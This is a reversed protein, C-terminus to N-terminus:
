PRGPNIVPASTVTVQPRATAWYLAFFAFVGLGLPIVVRTVAGDGIRVRAAHAANTAELGRLRAEHDGYKVNLEKVDQQNAQEIREAIGMYAAIREELRGIKEFQQHIQEFRLNWGEALGDIKSELRQVDSKPADGRPTM